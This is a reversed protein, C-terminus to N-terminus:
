VVLIESTCEYGFTIAGVKPSVGKDDTSLRVELEIFHGEPLSAPLANPSTDGPVQVVTTWAATELDMRQNATRARIVFSTNPPVQSEWDIQHWKTARDPCVDFVQRYWGEETTFHRLHYGIMDSYSYPESGVPIIQKGVVNPVPGSRDVELRTVIGVDPGNLHKSVGWVHGKFDVAVGAGGWPSYNGDSQDGNDDNGLYYTGVWSSKSPFTASDILAIESRGSTVIVWVWGDDDVAIGRLHKGAMDLFAWSDQSPSYRYVAGPTDLTTVWINGDGDMAIGYPKPSGAVKEFSGNDIDLRILGDEDTPGGFYRSAVWIQEMNDLVFGYPFFPGLSLSEMLDGNTGNLKYAAGSGHCGIWVHGNYEFNPGTEGTAAIGRVGLCGYTGTLPKPDDLNDRNFGRTWIVCEDMSQGVVGQATTAARPLLDDPGTSTDIKGNGNRDVCRSTEGAIKTVSSEIVNPDGTNHNERNGVFVDGIMDVGTRSPSPNPTDSMGVYYRGVERLTETDIKSVTGDASNAVWLHNSVFEETQLELWGSHDVGVGDSSNTEPSYERQTGPGMSDKPGEYPEQDEGEGEDLDVDLDDKNPSNGDTDESGQTDSPGKTSVVADSGAECGLQVALFLVGVLVACVSRNPFYSM